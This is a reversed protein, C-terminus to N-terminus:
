EPVFETEITLKVEDSVPGVFAGVGFDSRKITGTASFGVAPKNSMPHPNLAGNLKVDLTAPKTVGHFTLDGTVKGTESGTIEITKSVFTIKPFKGTDFFKGSAIEINFDDPAPPYNTDVSAPDITVELRSKAPEVSDLVLKADIGNFRGIYNSLGFHSVSWLVNTHTKDAVYTGSPVGISQASATVTSALLAAAFFSAKLTTM